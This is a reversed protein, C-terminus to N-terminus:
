GPFCRGFSELRKLNGRFRLKGSVLLNVLGIRKAMFDIWAQSDVWVALDPSGTHGEQIELRQDFISITVQGPEKGVFTFHYRVAIGKARGRQFALPLAALLQRVGHPRVGSSVRRVVKHPFRKSVHLEADSGKVVYVPEVKEQLPNVVQEIFGRKDDLFQGLIDDGAPCVAMCYASKYNPGMSLSQWLSATETDDVKSQYAKRNPSDTVNDVWDIFGGMFERYNHNLCAVSDFHGDSSIAGVPCVAVCLKCEVCPNYDLPKSEETVEQDLLVTNLLVFNGFKPHIVNRHIGMKGLGAAEAVLKHSVVWTRGPFEAMEMPFGPTTNLAGIGREALAVALRRGVEGVDDTSAHFEGNALSRRTSRIPEAPMKKVLCIAAKARAMAAHIYPLEAAMEPRSLNIAGADDAGCEMALARLESGSLSARPATAERQRYRSISPHDSKM